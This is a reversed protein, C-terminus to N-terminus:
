AGVKIDSPMDEETSEGSFGTPTRTLNVKRKKPKSPSAIHVTGTNVHVPPMSPMSDGGSGSSKNKKSTTSGGDSGEADTAKSQATMLEAEKIALLREHGLRQMEIQQEKQLRVEQIAKDKEDLITKYKELDLTQSDIYQSFNEKFKGLEQEMQGMQAESMVKSGDIQLKQSQIEFDSYAKQGEFTMQQTKYYQDFQEHQQATNAQTQQIGLKMQEYDPPPPPPNAKAAADNQEIQEMATEWSGELPRGTRFARAAFLASEIIPHILEPRFQSVNQINNVLQTITNLYEMRAAKDADEDIAITSDTEINIRFTMLKDQRLLQLAQPMLPQTEPPMQQAGAMLMITEDSFLGPEFIIQAMQSIIERCFKQVEQQPERMNLVLAKGKLQQTYVPDTPDSEGMMTDPIRSISRVQTILSAQYQMLPNLCEVAKDFPAWEIASGLGGKENQFQQWNDIPIFQGDTKTFMEKIKSNLTSAAMGVLRVCGVIGSIRKTVEDLETALKEYIKYDPTPYNSDTTTTALLPIPCCFFDKLNYPDIKEDLPREKYGESVWIVKKSDLDYIEYVVAQMLFAQEESSMDEKRKNTPNHELTVENGIEGFRKVLEAKTMYAIKAKWRVEYPNRALSELYDMWHLPDIIVKETNPKPVRVANGKDDVIPEGNEDSSEEWETDYRLWVQGRGPLLRDEVAAKVAYDFRDEQISVMYSTARECIDCALRGIPDSDKFRREVVVKPTCSYLSPKLVQVNSWLINYMIRTPAQSTNNYLVMADANKYDKCIVQGVKEFAKQAKSNKVLEIEKLWRNVKGEPGNYNKLDKEGGGTTSTKDTAM